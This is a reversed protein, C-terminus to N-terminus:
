IWSWSFYFPGVGVTFGAREIVHGGISFSLPLSWYRLRLICMLRPMNHDNVLHFATFLTADDFRRLRM